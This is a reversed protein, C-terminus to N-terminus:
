QESATSWACSFIYTEDADCGPTFHFGNELSLAPDKFFHFCGYITMVAGLAFQSTQALVVTFLYPCADACRVQLATLYRRWWPIYGISRLFYYLYRLCWLQLCCLM